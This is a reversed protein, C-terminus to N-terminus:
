YSGDTTMTIKYLQSGGSGCYKIETAEGGTDDIYFVGPGRYSPASSRPDIKISPYFSGGIGSASSGYVAAANVGSGTSSGWLGYNTTGEARVGPGTGTSEGHVGPGPNNVGHVGAKSAYNVVGYIADSVDSEGYVGYSGVSTGRVGYGGYFHRGWVGSGAGSATCGGYVGAYTASATQGFVGYLSTSTGYIGSSSSSIGRVGYNSTSEGYVGVSSTSIGKVGYGSTSQGLVGDNSSGFGFVGPGTASSSTGYIGAGSTGGSGIVGHTGSSVGYVGAGSIGIGYVGYDSGSTVEGKVGPGGGSTSTGYVGGAGGDGKVGFGSSNIGYVAAYTASANTGYVGYNSTAAGIVGINTGGSGCVGADPVSPVSSSFAGFVGFKGGSNRGCVGATETGTTCVGYVGHAGAGTSRGYIGGMSIGNILGGSAEGYIGSSNNSTSSVGIGAASGRTLSICTIAGHTGGALHQTFIEQLADEVDTATITSGVDALTVSSAATQTSLFSRSDTLSSWSGASYTAQGLLIGNGGNLAVVYQFTYSDYRLAGSQLDAYTIYILYTGSSSPTLNLRAPRAPGGDSPNSPDSEVRVINYDRTIGKGVACDLQGGTISLKLDTSTLPPGFVGSQNSGSEVALIGEILLEAQKIRSNETHDLHQETVLMGDTYETKKM